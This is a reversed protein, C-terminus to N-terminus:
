VGLKARPNFSMKKAMERYLEKDQERTAPPLEIRLVIFLNGPSKGPIGKGKLRLKKGQSSGPPIKLDVTGGPTPAKVQAGLIAEWPAVPLELYIDRNEVRYMKHPNFEIQLYIGGAPGGGHGPSGQGVLRIHQGPSIGKPIQVKLTKEKIRVHGKSDVEPTSLSLTRTAGFFADELDIFVKAHIDEGHTRLSANQFNSRQQKGFLEEFFDSFSSEGGETYGGSRSETGGGWDPPPRFDRGSQMDPGLQDYAARKESDKLVEYAEGLEKFLDVADTSKNIDPHYKRALKRYAKKIAEPTAKKDIGLTQYYDKYEM